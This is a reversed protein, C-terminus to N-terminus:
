LIYHLICTKNKGFLQKLTRTGLQCDLFVDKVEINMRVLRGICEDLLLDVFARLELGLPAPSAHIINKKFFHLNVVLYAIM